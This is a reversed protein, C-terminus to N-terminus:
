RSGRSRMDLHLLYRSSDLFGPASSDAIPTMKTVRGARLREAPTM